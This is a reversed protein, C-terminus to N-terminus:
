RPVVTIIPLETSWDMLHQFTGPANCLGFPMRNFKFLGFPTCFSTKPKDQETVPVQNYSSVLDMTSWKALCCM